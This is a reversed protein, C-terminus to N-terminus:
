PSTFPNNLASIDEHQASIKSQFGALSQDFLATNIKQQRAIIESESIEKPFYITDVLQTKLFLGLWAAAALLLVAIIRSSQLALLEAFRGRNFRLSINKM